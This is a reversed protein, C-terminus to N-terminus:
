HKQKLDFSVIGATNRAGSELKAKAFDRCIEHSIEACEDSM